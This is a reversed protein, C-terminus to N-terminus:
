ESVGAVLAERQERDLLLSTVRDLIVFPSMPFDDFIFENM